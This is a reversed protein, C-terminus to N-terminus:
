LDIDKGLRPCWSFCIKDHIRKARAKLYKDFECLMNHVDPLRLEDVLTDLIRPAWLQKCMRYLALLEQLLDEKAPKDSPDRGHIRNLARKAQLAVPCWIDLCPAEPLFPMGVLDRIIEAALSGAHKGGFGKVERLTEVLERWTPRSPGYLTNVFKTMEPSPDWLVHLPAYTYLEMIKKRLMREGSVSVLARRLQRRKQPSGGDGELQLLEERMSHLQEEPQEQAVAGANKMKHAKSWAECEFKYVVKAPQYAETFAHQGDKWVAVATDTVHSTLDHAEKTTKPLECWGLECMFDVSGFRRWICVNMICCRIFLDRQSPTAGEWKYTQQALLRRVVATSRDDERRLNPFRLHKLFADDTWPWRDGRSRHIRIAERERMFKFFGESSAPFGVRRDVPAEVTLRDQARQQAESIRRAEERILKKHKKDRKDKKDKAPKEMTPTIDRDRTSEVNVAGRVAQGAIKTAAATENDDVGSSTLRQRKVQPPSMGVFDPERHKLSSPQSSSAADM